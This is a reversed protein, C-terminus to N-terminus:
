GNTSLLAVVREKNLVMWEGESPYQVKALAIVRDLTEMQETRTGGQGAVFRLADSSILTAHIHAHTELAKLVEDEESPVEESVEARDETAVAEELM